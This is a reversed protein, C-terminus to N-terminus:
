EEKTNNKESIDEYLIVDYNKVITKADNTTVWKDGVQKKKLVDDFCEVDIISHEKFPKSKFLKSKNVQSKTINGTAINYTLIYPRNNPNGESDTYDKFVLVYEWTEPLVDSIFIPVELLETEWNLQQGIPIDKNNTMLEINAMEKVYGLFDVSYQSKTDKIIYKEMIGMDIDPNINNKRLIKKDNYKEFLNFVNLLAKNHGFEKFYNLRILIEMQTGNIKLKQKEKDILLDIFTDYKKDAIKYLEEGVIDGFGKISKLCNSLANKEPYATFKRNDQGFRMPLIEINFGKKAEKKALLAKAKDAREMQLNLFVEYFELPYLAKFYAGLLSDFSVSLSHSSNFGYASADEIIGWIINALELGQENTKNEQEQLAKSFGNIFTEKYSQIVETRKKSISKIVTYCDDMPIGAFALVKMIQEQYLIFSQPLEETQLLTDLTPIDYSFNERNILKDILSKFAPRIGAILASLESINHPKYSMAKHKSSNKELQNVGITYGNAYIDWVEPHDKCAQMLETLDMYKIGTREYLRYILKVVAVSLLDNKLMLFKEAWLGDMVTCITEKGGKSKIRIIGVETKIDYPLILSACNHVIHGFVNYSHTKQVEFNYVTQTGNIQEIDKINVWLLNDEYFNRLHKSSSMNLRFTGIYQKKGQIIRNEIKYEKPQRIRLLVPAKYVKHICQQLNYFLDASVTTFTICNKNIDKHGDASFYGELFYKLLDVPLDLIRYDITKGHAYKGFNSLFSYLFENRKIFIKYTTRDEQIRYDFLSQIHSEIEFLENNKKSCCLITRYEYNKDQNHYVKELWGDGVFRGVFWWFDKHSVYHNLGEINPIIAQQNIAFGIKDDKKINRVQVWKPESYYVRETRKENIICRKTSKTKVYIPHNGTVIMEECASTKIKYLDNSERSMTNLVTHYQNDHSLVKDGVTIDEINKYGKDTLVLTGSIFCPHPSFHDVIGLFKKSKIFTDRLDEDIYDLVQPEEDGSEPDFYKLDKEFGDIQSSIRNSVDFDVDNARCYMKWASKAKLKGYALMPYAHDEGVIERQSELFVPVNGCNFDIDALSGAKIRSASLFREPYLTIPCSIRDIATFGLLKNVIFSPGSGRGSFTIMGGKNEVANKIIEYNMLFYDAHKIEFITKLEKCIEEQYHKWETKPIKEKEENWRNFVIKALEKEREEESLHQYKLACPMKVTHDFIPSTYEEVNNFVNTNALAIKIEEDTLIGQKQFRTFLTQGDPYDMDFGEEEEFFIHGSKQLHDRMWADEKYIYHSDVGAIIEINFKRSLRLIENNWQKQVNVDHAQVELYFNDGFHNHIQQIIDEYDAYKNIGGICATTVWVDEKPLSLLLPLDIRARYYFGTLNAESLIGNIAKRGNENKAALVIHANTKDKEFRDKVLYAEVAFLFKLNYKEAMQFSEVYRGQYGHECSSIITHGLEVARKAYDEPYAVADLMIVNTYISHKHYNQYIFNETLVNYYTNKSYIRM